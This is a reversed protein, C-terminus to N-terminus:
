KAVIPQGEGAEELAQEARALVQEPDNDRHRQILTYGCYVECAGEAPIDPHKAQQERFAERLRRLCPEVGNRKMGFLLLAFQEQELRAALDVKRSVQLLTRALLKLAHRATAEPLADIGDLRLRVVCVPMNRRAFDYARAFELNFQRRNALGTLDDRRSQRALQQQQSDLNHRIDSLAPLIRATEGLGPRPPEAGANGFALQEVHERMQRFDGEVRRIHGRVLLTISGIILLFASVNFIALSLFSPTTRGPDTEILQLQWDTDAIPQSTSLLATGGAAHGWRSIINGHGDRLVFQQGARGHGGLLGQLEDLGFSVFLLGLPQDIEDLVPTTLDLHAQHPPERHVPPSKIGIGQSLLVMDTLCLPPLPQDIPAGLVDGDGSLLAVGLAQPLFRRMQLAWLQAAAVDNESLLDQTTPQRAVHRVLGRLFDLRSEILEVKAQLRGDLGNDDQSQYYLRALGLNVASVALFLLVISVAGIGVRAKVSLPRRGPPTAQAGRSSAQVAPGGQEHSQYM